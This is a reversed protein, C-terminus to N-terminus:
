ATVIIRLLGSFEVSMRIATRDPSSDTFRDALVSAPRTAAPRMPMRFVTLMAGGERVVAAVGTKILVV